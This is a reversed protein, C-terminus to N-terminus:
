CPVVETVFENITALEDDAQDSSQETVLAEDTTDKKSAILDLLISVNDSNRWYTIPMSLFSQVIADCIPVM